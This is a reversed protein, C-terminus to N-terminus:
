SGATMRDMGPIFPFGRFNVVNDFRDRCTDLSKDCGATVTFADGALVPEPMMAQLTFAQGSYSKVEMARGSNAGSTFTLLGGDFFGDAESCGSSFIHEDIVVSVTSSATFGGMDVKCKADGLDANCAPLYKYGPVQQLAQTLGRMETKFKGDQLTFEGLNGKRLWEHGMSLDNYNVRIIEVDAYDWLGAMVDDATIVTATLWGDAEMNDVSLDASTSINSTVFGSDAMYVVGNYDIDQDHDCFGYVAGDQRTIKWLIALTTVEGTLHATLAASVSKM